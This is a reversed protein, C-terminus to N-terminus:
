CLVESDLRPLQREQRPVKSSWLYWLLLSAGTQNKKWSHTNGVTLGRVAFSDSFHPKVKRIRCYQFSGHSFTPIFPPQALCDMHLAHHSSCPHDSRSWHARHKGSMTAPDSFLRCGRFHSRLTPPIPKSAPLHFHTNSLCTKRGRTGEQM